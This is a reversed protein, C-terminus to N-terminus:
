GRDDVETRKGQKTYSGRTPSFEDLIREVVHRIHRPKTVGVDMLTKVVPLGYEYVLARLEPSMADIHAFRKARKGAIFEPFDDRM